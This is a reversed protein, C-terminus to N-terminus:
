LKEYYIKAIITADLSQTANDETQDFSINISQIDIYQKSDALKSLFLDISSKNGKININLNVSKLTNSKIEEELVSIAETDTVEAETDLSTSLARTDDVQVDISSIDINAEQAFAAILDILKNKDFEKLVLENISESLDAPSNDNFSQKLLLEKKSIDLSELDASVMPLLFSNVSWIAVAFIILSLFKNLNSM